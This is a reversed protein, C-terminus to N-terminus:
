ILLALKCSNSNEKFSYISEQDEYKVTNEINQSNNMFSNILSNM